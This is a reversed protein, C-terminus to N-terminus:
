RERKTIEIEYRNMERKIEDGSCTNQISGTIMLAKEVVMAFIM